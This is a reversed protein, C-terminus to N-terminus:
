SRRPASHPAVALQPSAFMDVLQERLWRHAPVTENRQHWYLSIVREPAEFPARVSVLDGAVHARDCLDRPLVGILASARIMDLAVTYHNVTAVLNRKLGRSALFSDFSPQTQGALSIDVHRANLFRRATLQGPASLPHGRRMVCGYDVSWLSRSCVYAPPLTENVYVGIVCDVRNGELLVPVDLLINPVTHFQIGPASEGFRTVLRPMVIGAVYDSMSLSFSAQASEPSFTEEDLASRIRTLSEGVPGWLAMARQTPRVGAGHRVFLPDGFAERLRSLANSVAPQTLSLKTAARTVAGETMLAEFVKLLNLDLTRFSM